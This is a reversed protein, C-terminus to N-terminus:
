DIFSRCFIKADEICGFRKPFQPQYKLTKFCSESYPNDNSTYPRSHSKTVGLDALLLATADPTQQRAAPARARRGASQGARSQPRGRGSELGRLRRRRAAPALGVAGVLLPGRAADGRRRRGADVEALVRLKDRAKFTRRRPLALFEPSAADRGAVITPRRGEETAPGSAALTKEHTLVPMVM